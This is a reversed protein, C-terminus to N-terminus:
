TTKDGGREGGSLMHVKKHVDGRDLKAKKQGVSRKDM